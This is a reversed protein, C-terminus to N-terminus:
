AQEEVIAVTQAAANQLKARIYLNILNLEQQAQKYKEGRGPSVGWVQRYIEEKNEGLLGEVRAVKWEFNDIRAIEAQLAKPVFIGMQNTVQNGGPQWGSEVIRQRASSLPIISGSEMQKIVTWNARVPPPPMREVLAALDDATMYAYVFKRPLGGQEIIIFGQGPEFFNAEKAEASTLRMCMAQDYPTRLVVANPCLDRVEYDGWEDKSAVQGMLICSIGMKGTESGMRQILAFIRDYVPHHKKVKLNRALRYAEDIVVLIRLGSYPSRRGDRAHERIYIEEELFDAVRELDKPEDGAPELACWPLLPEIRLTLPIGEDLDEVDKHPDIVVFMTNNMAAYNAMWYAVLSSKGGGSGAVIITSKKLVTRLPNLAFTKKIPDADVIYGLLPESQGPRVSGNELEGRFTPAAPRVEIPETVPESPASLSGTVSGEVQKIHYTQNPANYSNGPPLYAIPRRAQDLPVPYNGQENARLLFKENIHSDLKIYLDAGSHIIPLVAFRVIVLVLGVIVIAGLVIGFIGIYRWCAIVAAITIIAAVMAGIGFAYLKAKV